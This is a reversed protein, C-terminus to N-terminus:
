VRVLRPDDETAAGEAGQSQLPEVVREYYCLLLLRAIEVGGRFLAAALMLPWVM